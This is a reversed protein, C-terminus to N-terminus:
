AAVAVCAPCDLRRKVAIRRTEGYLGDYIMMQGRLPQGAGTVLKVAELAMMAGLVGPLPGIVGAEACAPALEPDPAEPFVCRYCPGDRAPDFVSLQGEWQTLAGSVLPTGTAVAAANVLYRTEFNDSGDLVIDYDAFLKEATDADLRRNYPRVTLFPNQAELEAQASFVKPMGISADKHIVQRHLNASSVTDDDVV